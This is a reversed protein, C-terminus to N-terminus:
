LGFVVSNVHRGDVLIRRIDPDLSKQYLLMGLEGSAMTDSMASQLRKYWRASQMICAEVIDAPPSAYGGWRATVRVTPGRRSSNFAGISGDATAMIASYPTRDFIPRDYNGQYALWDSDDYRTYDATASGRTEVLAIAICHDLRQYAKGSGRYQRATADPDAEFYTAGPYYRNCARDISITAADLIAELVDDDGDTTKDIHEKLTDLEAYAM